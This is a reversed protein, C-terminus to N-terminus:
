SIRINENNEKNNNYQVKLDEHSEYNDNSIM